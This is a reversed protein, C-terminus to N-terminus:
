AENDATAQCLEAFAEKEAGVVLEVYRELAEMRRACDDLTRAADEIRFRVWSELSDIGSKEDDLVMVRLAAAAVEPLHSFTNYVPKEDKDQGM